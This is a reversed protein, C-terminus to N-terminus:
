WLIYMLEKWCVIHKSKGLDTLNRLMFRRQEQWVPGESYAVGYLKRGLFM